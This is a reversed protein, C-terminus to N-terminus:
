PADALAAEIAARLSAESSYRGKHRIVGAHDVVIAMDNVSGGSTLRQKIQHCADYAVTM